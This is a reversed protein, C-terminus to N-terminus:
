PLEPEGPLDAWLSPYVPLLGGAKPHVGIVWASQVDDWWGVVRGHAVENPRGSEDAKHWASPLFLLLPVPNGAEDKRPATDLSKWGSM